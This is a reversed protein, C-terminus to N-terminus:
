SRSARRKAIRHCAAAAATTLAADVMERHAENHALTVGGFGSRAVPVNADVALAERPFLARVSGSTRSFAIEDGGIAARPWGPGEQNFRVARALDRVSLTVLSIRPEM